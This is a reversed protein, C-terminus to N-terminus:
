GAQEIARGLRELELSYCFLSFLVGLVIFGKALVQGLPPFADLEPVHRFFLASFLVGAFFFSARSAFMLLHGVLANEFPARIAVWNHRAWYLGQLAITGAVVAAQTGLEIDLTQGFSAVLRKFVPFITWFLFSAALTQLGILIPYALAAAPYPRQRNYRHNPHLM